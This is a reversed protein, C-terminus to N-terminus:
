PYWDHDISVGCVAPSDDFQKISPSSWGGKVTLDSLFVCYADRVLHSSTVSLNPIMTTLIGFPIVLCDMGAELLKRGAATVIIM